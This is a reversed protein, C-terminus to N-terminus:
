DQKYNYELFKQGLAVNDNEPILKKDKLLSIMEKMKLSHSTEICSNVLTWGIIM